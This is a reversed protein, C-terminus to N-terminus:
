EYKFLVHFRIFRAIILLPSLAEDYHGNKIGKGANLTTVPWLVIAGILAQEKSIIVMLWLLVQNKILLSM